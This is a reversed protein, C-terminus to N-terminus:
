NEVATADPILAAPVYIVSVVFSGTNDGHRPDFVRLRVQGSHEAVICGVAGIRQGPHIGVKVELAGVHDLHAPAGNADVEPVYPGISIMGDAQVVVIDGPAVMIGTPTWIENDAAVPVTVHRIPSQSLQLPLSAVSITAVFLSRLVM